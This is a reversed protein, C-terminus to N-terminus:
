SSGEVRAIHEPAFGFGDTHGSLEWEGLIWRGDFTGMYLVSHGGDYTKIWGVRAIGGDHRYQGEIKFTGIMDLGDGRVMGDAFEMTQEQPFRQRMQEYYGLWRGSVFRIFSGPNTAPM